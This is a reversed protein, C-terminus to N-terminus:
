GLLTNWALTLLMWFWFLVISLALAQGVGALRERLANKKSAPLLRYVVFTSILLFLVTRIRM